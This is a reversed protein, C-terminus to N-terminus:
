LIHEFLQEHLEADAVSSQCHHDQSDLRWVVRVVPFELDSGPKPLEPQLVFVVLLVEDALDLLEDIFLELFLFVCPFGRGFAGRLVGVSGAGAWAFLFGVEALLGVKSDAVALFVLIQGERRGFHLIQLSVLVVM